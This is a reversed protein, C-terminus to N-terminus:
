LPGTGPRRLEWSGHAKRLLTPWAGDRRTVWLWGGDSWVHRIVFRTDAAGVLHRVNQFMRIGAPM